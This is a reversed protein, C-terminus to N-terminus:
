AGLQQEEFYRVRRLLRIHSAEMTAMSAANASAVEQLKTIINQQKILRAQWEAVYTEKSVQQAKIEARLLLVEADLRKVAWEYYASCAGDCQDFGCGECIGEQDDQEIM